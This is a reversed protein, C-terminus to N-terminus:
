VTTITQSGTGMFTCTFTEADDNTSKVMLDSIYGEYSQKFDLALFDSYLLTVKTRNDAITQLDSFTVQSGKYSTASAGKEAQMGFCTFATGSVKRIAAMIDTGGGSLHTISYRTLTATLTITSSETETSGDGVAIKVSGTGKLWVSFTVRGGSPITDLGLPALQQFYTSTGWTVVQALIQGNENAVRTASPAGTGFTVWAANGINEPWQLKNILNSTCIGEMSCNGEKLGPEVEKNGSSDKTTIDIMAMKNAFDNTKTLAIRQGNVYLGLYNGSVAM